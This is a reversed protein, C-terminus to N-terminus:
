SGVVEVRHSVGAPKAAAVVADISSADVGDAARVRVVLPAEATGPMPGRPAPSWVVGGGEEIEPEEGILLQLHRALGARTGNRRHLEGTEAVVARRRETSWRPDLIAGVWSGLWPLFDEPTVAPDFYADLNDLTVFVPALTQGLAEVFRVVFEDSALMAPLAGVVSPPSPLDGVSRRAGM